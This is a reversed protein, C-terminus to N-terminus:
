NVTFRGGKNPWSAVSGDAYLIQADHQRHQTRAIVGFSELGLPSTFNMDLALARIARGNRNTGLNDLELHPVPESPTFFLQTVGAHRYFYSGQAQGKGVKALEEEAALAQDRGPCFLVKPTQALENSLLLGLAVPAGSQLSLLSTPSGTSP